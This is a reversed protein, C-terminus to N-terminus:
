RTVIVPSLSSVNTQAMHDRIKMCLLLVSTRLSTIVVHKSTNIFGIMSCAPRLALFWPYIQHQPSSAARSEPIHWSAQRVKIRGPSYYNKIFHHSKHRGWVLTAESAVTQIIRRRSHSSPRYYHVTPLEFMGSM